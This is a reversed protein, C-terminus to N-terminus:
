TDMYTYTYSYLRRHTSTHIDTNIDKHERIIHIHVYKYIKGTTM